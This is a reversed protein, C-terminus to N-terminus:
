WLGMVTWLRLPPLFRLDKQLGLLRLLLSGLSEEGLGQLPRGLVEFVQPSGDPGV